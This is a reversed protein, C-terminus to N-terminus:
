VRNYKKKKNQIPTCSILLAIITEPKCQLSGAVYTHIYTHIWEGEFEGGMWAAVCCQASNWTSHLPDKNTIWKLDLLTYMDM